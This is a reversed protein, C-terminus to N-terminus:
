ILISFIFLSTNYKNKTALFVRGVGPLCVLTSLFSLVFLSNKDHMFLKIYLMIHLKKRKRCSLSAAVCVNDIFFLFVTHFGYQRSIEVLVGCTVKNKCATNSLTLKKQNIYAVLHTSILWVFTETVHLYFWVDSLKRQNKGDKMRRLRVAFM